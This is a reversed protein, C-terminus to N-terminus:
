KILRRYSVPKTEGRNLGSGRRDPFIVRYGKRCLHACSDNYWAGHSRIGHVGILVGKPAKTDWERYRLKVGDATVTEKIEPRLNEM